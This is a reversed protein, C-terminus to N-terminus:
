VVHRGEDGAAAAGGTLIRRLRARGRHLYVKVTNLPMELAEAIERYKCGQIERLVVISRYPEELDDLAAELRRGLESTRSRDEPGPATDRLVVEGEVASSDAIPVLRFRRRRLRDICANRTVRLLWPGPHESDVTARHRWLKLLVDQTVDEAEEPSGLLYRAYTFVRDQFREVTGEFVGNM